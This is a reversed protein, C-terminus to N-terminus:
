LAAGVRLQRGERGSRLAVLAIELARVGDALTCRPREAGDLCAVFHRMEDLFMDNRSFGPAPLFPTVRDRQADHLYASGDADSWHIRGRTGVLELGHTRPHQLYDLVVSALTGSAFRLSVHATDEVDLGLARQSVFASVTEVEGLLWRLYDFPHCLTRLAGGGLDARAAYSRRWDEGPHWAALEEGWHVQASVLEGVAGEELWAKVRQLGPHFRYQFGVLAVLRRRQVEGVLRAVGNLSHALPKEVLVHVGARAAALAVELHLATPNCVLLARPGAELAREIDYEEPADLAPAAPDRRGTRYLFADHGLRRLNGLHRRGISGSGAILFRSGALATPAARTLEPLASM